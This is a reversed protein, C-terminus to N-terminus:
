TKVVLVWFLLAAIIRYIGFSIFTHNKVYNLLWKIAALAVVFSVIFGIALLYFQDFSFSGASKFLDYGTAAAMTPVALLFSFEVIKERNIGMLLGGIITAGSRSVGPIIALAQWVGIWFSKKFSIDNVELFPRGDVEQTKRRAYWWEFLILAVGGLALSWVVLLANSLLYNKLIKYLLFGIVATPLFAAFVKKWTALGSVLERSNTLPPFFNKWYLAIVSLIAGLQIAIEFSKTFSSDEVGLLKGTLILHGTSSIPLFETVGEVIGLIISQIITM